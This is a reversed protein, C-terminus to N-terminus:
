AAARKLPLHLMQRAEDISAVERGVDRSLRAARAVLEGNSKAMTGEPLYFNDEFGVRIHGGLTLAAACLRWQDRSIGIVQWNSSPPLNDMMTIINKTTAPVGGDVGLIFSFEYPPELVGMDILPYASGVHGVDFCEMEPRVGHEKMTKLYFIIDDFSNEFVLKFVFDKRKESYKAYNMTGMNLAAIDPKCAPVSAIRQEKTYGIAGTSFNIILNPVKAVIADRIARYDEVDQSPIGDPKRAHIHVISCGEDAARKAEAAYEEPTYPIGPCQARNAAVGSLACSIITKM